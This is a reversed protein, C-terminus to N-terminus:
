CSKKSKGEVLKQRINLIEPFVHNTLVPRYTDLQNRSDVIAAQADLFGRVCLRARVEPLGTAPDTKWTLGWRATM